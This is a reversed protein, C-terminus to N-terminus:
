ETKDPEKAKLAKRAEIEIAQGRQLGFVWGARHSQDLMDDGTKTPDPLPGSPLKVGNSYAALAQYYGAKGIERELGSESLHNQGMNKEPLLSGDHLGDKIRQKVLVAVETEEDPANAEDINPAIWSSSELHVLPVSGKLLKKTKPDWVFSCEFSNVNPVKTTHKWEKSARFAPYAGLQSDELLFTVTLKRETTPQSSLILSLIYSALTEQRVGPYAIDVTDGSEKHVASIKNAGGEATFSNANGIGSSQSWASYLKMVSANLRLHEDKDWATGWVPLLSWGADSEGGAELIIMGPTPSPSPAKRKEDPFVVWSIGRADEEILTGPVKVPPVPKDDKGPNAIYKGSYRAELPKDDAGEAIVRLDLPAEPTSYTSRILCWVTAAVVQDKSYPSYAPPKWARVRLTVPDALIQTSDKVEVSIGSVSALNRDLETGGDWIMAGDPFPHAECIFAHIGYGHNSVVGVRGLPIRSPDSKPGLNVPQEITGASVSTAQCHPRCAIGIIVILLAAAFGRYTSKMLM